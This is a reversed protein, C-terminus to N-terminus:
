QVGHVSHSGTAAVEPDEVSILFPESGSCITIDMGWEVTRSLCGVSLLVVCEEGLKIASGDPSGWGLVQPQGLSPSAAGM